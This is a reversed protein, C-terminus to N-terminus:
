WLLNYSLYAPSYKINIAKKGDKTYINSHRARYAKRKTKDNTDLFDKYGKAGFSIKKNDLVLDYKKKSNTSNVIHGKIHLKKAKNRIKNLKDM